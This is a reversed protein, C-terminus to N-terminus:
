LPSCGFLTALRDRNNSSGGYSGTGPVANFRSVYFYAAGSAPIDSDEDGVTDADASNNEICTVPGM